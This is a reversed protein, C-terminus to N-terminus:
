NKDNNVYGRRKEEEVSDVKDCSFEEVFSVSDVKDEAAAEDDDSYESEVNVYGCWEDASSGIFELGYGNNECRRWGSIAIGSVLIHVRELENSLLVRLNNISSFDKVEGMVFNDLDREVVCEDDLVMAPSSAVLRDVNDVKIFRVFAFRKGAKSKRDPIFVDVVTGYGKCVEWLDKSTTNDPFNTVFISKSILRTHDVNSRARAAM